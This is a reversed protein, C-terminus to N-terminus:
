VALAADPLPQWAVVLPTVCTGQKAPCTTLNTSPLSTWATPAFGSIGWAVVTDVWGSPKCSFSADTIQM